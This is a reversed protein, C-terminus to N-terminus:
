RPTAPPGLGPEIDRSHADPVPASGLAASGGRRQRCQGLPTTRGRSTHCAAASVSTVTRPFADAAVAGGGRWDLWQCCGQGGVGVSRPYAHHDQPRRAHNRVAGRRHRRAEDARVRQDCLEDPHALPLGFRRLPPDKAAAIQREADSIECAASVTCQGSVPSDTRMPDPRPLPVDRQGGDWQRNMSPPLRQAVTRIDNQHASVM